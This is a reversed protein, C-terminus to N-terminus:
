RAQLLDFCIRPLAAPTSREVEAALALALADLAPEPAAALAAFAPLEAM